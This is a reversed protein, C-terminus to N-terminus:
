VVQLLYYSFYHLCSYEFHLKILNQYGEKNKALLILHYYKDDIGAEKQLRSRPAVYVECGIIPKIGEKQCEKFFALQGLCLEM